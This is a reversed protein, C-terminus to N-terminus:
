FGPPPSPSLLSLNSRWNRETKLAGGIGGLVNSLPFFLFPSPFLPPPCNSRFLKGGGTQELVEDDPISFCVAKLPLLPFFFFFFLWRDFAVPADKAQMWSELLVLSGQPHFVARFSCFLPPSSFLFLFIGCSDSDNDWGWIRSTSIM